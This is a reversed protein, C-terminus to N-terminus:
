RADRGTVIAVRRRIEALSWPEGPDVFEEGCWVCSLVAEVDGDENRGVDPEMPEHCFPCDRTSM